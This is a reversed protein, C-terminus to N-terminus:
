YVVNVGALLPSKKNFYIYGFSFFVVWIFAQMVLLKNKEPIDSKLLRQLALLLFINNFTWAPGFVWAPPAWPAQKLKKNYLKKEKNSSLGSALGGIATVAISLLAVQWWKLATYKKTLM